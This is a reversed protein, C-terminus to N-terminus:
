GSEDRGGHALRPLQPPSQSLHGMPSSHARSNATAQEPSRRWDFLVKFSTVFSHSLEFRIGRGQAPPTDREHSSSSRVRQSAVAKHRPTDREHSSSSRFERLHWPRTGHLTVSAALLFCRFGESSKKLPSRSGGRRLATADAFGEACLCDLLRCQDDPPPFVTKDRQAIPLSELSLNWVECEDNEILAAMHWINLLSRLEVPGHRLKQCRM